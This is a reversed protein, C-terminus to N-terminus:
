LIIEKLGGIRLRAVESVWGRGDGLSELVTHMKSDIVVRSDRVAKAAICRSHKPPSAHINCKYTELGVVNVLVRESNEGVTCSRYEVIRNFTIRVSHYVLLRGGICLDHPFLLGVCGVLVLDGHVSSLRSFTSGCTGVMLLSGKVEVLDQSEEVNNLYYSMM